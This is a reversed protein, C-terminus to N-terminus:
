RYVTLIFKQVKIRKINGNENIKKIESFLVYLFMSPPRMHRKYLIKLTSLMQLFIICKKFKSDIILEVSNFEKVHDLCLIIASGHM